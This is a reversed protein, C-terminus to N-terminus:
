NELMKALYAISVKFKDNGTLTELNTDYKAELDALLSVVDFSDLKGSEVLDEDLGIDTAGSGNTKLLDLVMERVEAEKPSLESSADLM